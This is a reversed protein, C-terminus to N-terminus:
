FLIEQLEFPSVLYPKHASVLRAVADRTGSSTPNFVLAKNCRDVMYQNRVFNAHLGNLYLSKSIITVTCAHEVLENFVAIRNRHLVSHQAWYYQGYTNTPLAVEYPIENRMGVKAIAEDWGEAMGSILVLDPYQERLQLVKQELNAYINHRHPNTVMSRSGTGMVKM